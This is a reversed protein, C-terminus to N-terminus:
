VGLDHYVQKDRCELNFHLAVESKPTSRLAFRYVPDVTTM